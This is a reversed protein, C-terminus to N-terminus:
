FKFAAARAPGAASKLAESRDERCRRRRCDSDDARSCLWGRAHYYRLRRACAQGKSLQVRGARQEGGFGHHDLRATERQGRRRGHRRRRTVFGAGDFWYPRPKAGNRCACSCVALGAGPRRRRHAGIFEACIHITPSHANWGGKNTKTSVRPDIANQFDLVSTVIVSSRNDDRRRVLDVSRVKNQLSVSKWGIQM